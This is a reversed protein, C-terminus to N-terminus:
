RTPSLALLQQDVTTPSSRHFLKTLFPAMNSGGLTGEGMALGDMAPKSHPCPLGGSSIVKAAQLAKPSSRQVEIVFERQNAVRAFWRVGQDM